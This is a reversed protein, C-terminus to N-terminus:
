LVGKFGYKEFHGFLSIALIERVIDKCPKLRNNDFKLM